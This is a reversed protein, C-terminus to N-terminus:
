GDSATRTTPLQAPVASAVSFYLLLPELRICCSVEEQGTTEGEFFQPPSPIEADPTLNKILLLTQPSLAIHFNFNKVTM